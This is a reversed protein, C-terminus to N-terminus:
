NESKTLIGSVDCKKNNLLAIGTPAASASVRSRIANLASYAANTPGNIENEAEAVM